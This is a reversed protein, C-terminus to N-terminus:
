GSSGPTRSKSAPIASRASPSPSLSASRALPLAAALIEPQGVFDAVDLAAGGGKVPAEDGDAWQRQKGGIGAIGPEQARGIVKVGTQCPAAIGLRDLKLFRIGVEGDPPLVIADVAISEDENVV